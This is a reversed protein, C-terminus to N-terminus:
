AVHGDEFSPEPDFGVDAAMEAIQQGIDCRASVLSLGQKQAARLERQSLELPKLREGMSQESHPALRQTVVREANIESVGGERERGAASDVYLSREAALNRDPQELGIVHPRSE